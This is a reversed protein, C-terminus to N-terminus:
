LTLPLRYQFLHAMFLAVETRSKHEDYHIPKFFTQLRGYFLNTLVNDLETGWTSDVASIM